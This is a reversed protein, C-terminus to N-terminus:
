VSKTFSASNKVGRFKAATGKLVAAGAAVGAGLATWWMSLSTAQAPILTVVFGAVGADLVREILDKAYTGATKVVTEATENM